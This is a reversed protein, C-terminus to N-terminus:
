SLRGIITALADHIRQAQSRVEFALGSTGGISPKKDQAISATPGDLIEFLQSIQGEVDVLQDHTRGLVERVGEIKPPDTMPRNAQQASQQVAPYM